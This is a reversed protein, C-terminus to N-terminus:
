VNLSESFIYDKGNNIHSIIKPVAQVSMIHCKKGLSFTTKKDMIKQDKLNGSTEVAAIDKVHRCKGM